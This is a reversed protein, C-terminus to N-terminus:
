FSIKNIAGQQIKKDKCLNKKYSHTRSVSQKTKPSIRTKIYNYQQIFTTMSKTWVQAKNFYKRM